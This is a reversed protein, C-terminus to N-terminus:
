QHQKRIVGIYHSCLWPVKSLVFCGLWSYPAIARTIPPALTIRKMRVECNSFLAKIERLKVGKVDPNRPNDMHYDYWLILGNPRLVRCMEGAIQTKMRNDLVSTFVTSQLVLDFTENQYDLRVANGQRIEVGEPCLKSAEAVRDTLLEVGYLNEPRAGWEIFDRLMDGNGCGIELIKKFELQNIGYETLLRLFRREREQVMYLYARNFRSYLTGSGRRAYAQSIRHEEAILAEHTTM